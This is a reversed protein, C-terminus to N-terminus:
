LTSFKMKSFRWMYNVHTKMIEHSEKFPLPNYFQFSKTNLKM